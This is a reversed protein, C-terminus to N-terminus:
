KSGQELCVRGPQPQLLKGQQVETNAQKQSWYEMDKHNKLNENDLLKFWVELMSGIDKTTCLNWKEIQMEPAIHKKLEENSWPWPFMMHM